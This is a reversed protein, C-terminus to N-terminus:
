SDSDDGPALPMGEETAEAEEEAEYADDIRDHESKDPQTGM